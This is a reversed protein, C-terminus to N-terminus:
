VILNSDMFTTKKLVRREIWIIIREVPPMKLNVPIVRSILRIIEKLWKLRYGINCLRFKDVEIGQSLLNEWKQLVSEYSFKEEFYEMAGDYDSDCSKLLNIVTDALQSSRSYLKGNKVTDLYGPAKITAIRAGLTQMEVASLCFTETIGTPNPVGVKTKLLIEDKEDGMRGMFHVNPLVHGNNTLSRTILQEYHSEAIGYPGLIKMSDYLAGSGIVYLQADPIQEVIKSWAEALLHFGKFPVLSGMYTVINARRNFPNQCVRQRCGSTNVCNYIYTSKAFIPHDRYLDMMERGVFVVRHVFPNHSYYDWEWHCGFIHCWVIFRLSTDTCLAKLTINEVDHKLIFYDINDSEARHIAAPLSDVIEYSLSVPISQQKLVYLKIELGNQRESLMSAILLILYETGGIGPNGKKLDSVDIDSISRNDLYFGIRKM